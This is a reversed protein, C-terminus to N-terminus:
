GGPPHWVAIELRRGLEHEDEARRLFLTRLWGCIGRTTCKRLFAIVVHASTRIGILTLRMPILPVGRLRLSHRDLESIFTMQLAKKRHATGNSTPINQQRM